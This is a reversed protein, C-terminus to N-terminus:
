RYSNVPLPVAQRTSEPSTFTKFCLISLWRSPTRYCNGSCLTPSSSRWPVKWCEMIRHSMPCLGASPREHSMHDSRSPVNPAVVPGSSEPTPGDPQGSISNETILCYFMLSSIHFSCWVLETLLLLPDSDCLSLSLSSPEWLPTKFGKM